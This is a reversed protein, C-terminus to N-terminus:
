VAEQANVLSQEYVDVQGYEDRVPYAAKVEEPDHMARRRDALGVLAAGFDAMLDPTVFELVVSVRDLGEGAPIALFVSDSYKPLVGAAIDVDRAPWTYPEHIDVASMRVYPAPDATGHRLHIRPTEGPLTDVRATVGLDVPTTENM